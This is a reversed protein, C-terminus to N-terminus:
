TADPLSGGLSAIAMGVAVTFIGAWQLISPRSQFVLSLAVQVLIFTGGNALTLALNPNLRAYLKMMFWISSAGFVNGIIFCPLWRTSATTGHKFILAAVIQMAWFIAVYFTTM